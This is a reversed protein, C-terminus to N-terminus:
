VLVEVLELLPHPSTVSTLPLRLQPVRIPTQIAIDEDDDQPDENSDASFNSMHLLLEDLERQQEPALTKDLHGVILRFSKDKSTRIAAFADIINAESFITTDNIAVICAGKLNRGVTKPSSSVSHVSTKKSRSVDCIFPKHFLEDM